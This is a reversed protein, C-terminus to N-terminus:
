RHHIGDPLVDRSGTALYMRVLRVAQNGTLVLSDALERSSRHLGAPARIRWPTASAFGTLGVMHHGPVNSVDRVRLTRSTTTNTTPISPQYRHSTDITLERLIEGTHKGIITVNLGQILALFASENHVPETQSLRGGGGGGTSHWDRRHMHKRSKCPADEGRM